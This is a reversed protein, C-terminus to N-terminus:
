RTIRPAPAAPLQGVVDMGRTLKGRRPSRRRQPARANTPAVRRAHSRSASDDAGHASQDGSRCRLPQFNARLRRREGEGLHDAPGGDRGQRGALHVQDLEPAGRRPGAELPELLESRQPLRVAVLERDDADDAGVGLLVVELRDRVVVPLVAVRDVERDAEVWRNGVISARPGAASSLRSCM